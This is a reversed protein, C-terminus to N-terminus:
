IEDKWFKSINFKGTEKDIEIRSNVDFVKKIVKENIIEMPDGYSVIEGKKLILLKDSNQIASNLNHIVLIINKGHINKLDALIKMIKIEAAIDLHNTPEDLIITDTRQALALAILVRQKLGGSLDELYKDKYEFISAKKMSDDIIEDEMKLYYNFSKLNKSIKNHPFRGIRVFEKVKVGTPFESLQPVYAVNQSYQKSKINKILKGHYFINGKQPNLIKVLSKLFTTKGCGNPGIVSLFVNNKIEFSFNAFIINKSDYGLNVKEFKFLSKYNKINKNKIEVNKEIFFLIKAKILEKNKLIFEDFKSEQETKKLSKLIINFDSIENSFLQNEEKYNKQLFYELTEFTIKKHFFENKRSKLILNAKELFFNNNVDIFNKKLNIIEKELFHTKNSIFKKELTSIIELIIWTNTIWIDSNINKDTKKLFDIQNLIKNKM